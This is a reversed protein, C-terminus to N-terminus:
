VTKAERLLIFLSDLHLDQVTGAATLKSVLSEHMRMRWQKVLFHSPLVCAFCTLLGASYFWKRIAKPFFPARFFLQYNIISSQYNMIFAGKLTKM